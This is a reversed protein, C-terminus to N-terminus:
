SANRNKKMFFYLTLAATLAGAILLAIVTIGGATESMEDIKLLAIGISYFNFGFHFFMSTFISGTYEYLMAMVVGIVFACLGTVLDMHVVGFIAASVLAAATYGAFARMRRFIVARFLLEEAVPALLCIVIFEGWLPLSSMMDYRGPNMEYMWESIGTISILLNMVTSVSLGMFLALMSNGLGPRPESKLNLKKGSARFIDKKYIAYMVPITVVSALASLIMNMANFDTAYIEQMIQQTVAGVDSIDVGSAVYESVKIIGYIGGGIMSVINTIAFWILLPIAVQGFRHMTGSGSAGQVGGLRLLAQTLNMVDGALYQAGGKTLEDRSGTGYSVGVAAIGCSSAAEMDYYRDGVYVVEGRMYQKGLRKLTEEILQATTAGAEKAGTIVSCYGAIGLRQLLSIVREEPLMSIVGITCGARKLSALMQPVMPILRGLFMGQGTYYTRYAELAREADEQTFQGTGLYAERLPKEFFERPIGGSPATKGAAAYGSLVSQAIGDRFDCLTGDLDFLVTKWLTM